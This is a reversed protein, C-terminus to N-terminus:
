GTLSMMLLFILDSGLDEALDRNEEHKVSHGRENATSTDTDHFNVPLILDSLNTVISTRFSWTEETIRIDVFNSKRTIWSTNAM